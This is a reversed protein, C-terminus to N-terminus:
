SLKSENAKAHELWAQVVSNIPENHMPEEPEFVIPVSGMRAVQGPTWTAKSSRDLEFEPIRALFEEIVIQAEIRLIHAGFCRHVGTGLKSSKPIARLSGSDAM